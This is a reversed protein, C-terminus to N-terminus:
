PCLAPVCVWGGSPEPREGGNKPFSKLIDECIKLAKKYARADHHKQCSSHAPPPVSDLHPGRHERVDETREPASNAPGQGPRQWWREAQAADEIKGEDCCSSYETENLSDYCDHILLDARAQFLM